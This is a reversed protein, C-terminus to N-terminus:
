RPKPPPASDGPDRPPPVSVKVTAQLLGVLLQGRGNIDDDPSSYYGITARAPGAPARGLDYTVRFTARGRAPIVLVPGAPGTRNAGVEEIKVTLADVAWADDQKSPSADPTLNTELKLVRPYTVEALREGRNSFVMTVTARRDEPIAFETVDLHLARVPHAMAAEAVRDLSAALREFNPDVPEVTGVFRDHRNAGQFLTMQRYQSDLPIPGHSGLTEFGFRKLDARIRQVDRASLLMEYEGFEPRRPHTPWDDHLEYRVRGSADLTLRNPHWPNSAFTYEIKDFVVGGSDHIMPPERNLCGALALSLSTLLFIRRAHHEGPSRRM